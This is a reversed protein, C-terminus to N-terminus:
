CNHNELFSVTKFFYIFRVNIASTKILVHELLPIITCFQPVTDISFYIPKIHTLSFFEVDRRKYVNSASEFLRFVTLLM